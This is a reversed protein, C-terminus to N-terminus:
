EGKLQKYYNLWQNYTDNFSELLDNISNEEEENSPQMSVWYEYDDAAERMYSEIREEKTM